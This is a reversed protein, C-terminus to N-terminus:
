TGGGQNELAVLGVRGVLHALQGLKLGRLLVLSHGYLPDLVEEAVVGERVVDQALDLEQSQESAM